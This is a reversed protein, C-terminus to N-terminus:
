LGCRSSSRGRWIVNGCAPDSPDSPDIRRNIEPGSVEKFIEGDVDM